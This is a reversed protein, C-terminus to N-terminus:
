HEFVMGHLIQKINPGYNPLKINPGYSPLISKKRESATWNSKKRKGQQSFFCVKKLM